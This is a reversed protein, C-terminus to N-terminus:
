FVELNIITFNDDIHFVAVADCGEDPKDILVWVQNLMGFIKFWYDRSQIDQHEPPLFPRRWPEPKQQPEMWDPPEIRIVRTSKAKALEILHEAAAEDSDHVQKYHEIADNM